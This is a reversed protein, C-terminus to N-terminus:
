WDEEGYPDVSSTIRIVEIRANVPILNEKGTKDVYAFNLNKTYGKNNIECKMKIVLYECFLNKGQLENPVGNIFRFHKKVMYKLLIEMIQDVSGAFKKHIEMITFSKEVIINEFNEFTMMESMM